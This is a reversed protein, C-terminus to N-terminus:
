PPARVSKSRGQPFLQLLISSHSLNSSVSIQAQYFVQSSMAILDDDNSTQPDEVQKILM